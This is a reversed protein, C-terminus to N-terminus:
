MTKVNLPTYVGDRKSKDRLKKFKKIQAHQKVKQRHVQMLAKRTTNAKRM